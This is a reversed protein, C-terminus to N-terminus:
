LPNWPAFLCSAGCLIVAGTRKANEQQTKRFNDYQEHLLSRSVVVAVRVSNVVSM